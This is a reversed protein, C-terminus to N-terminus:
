KQKITITVNDNVYGEKPEHDPNTHGAITVEVDGKGVAGSAIVDLAAKRAASHQRNTEPHVGGVDPSQETPKDSQLAKKSGYRVSWAMPTESEPKVKKVVVVREHAYM